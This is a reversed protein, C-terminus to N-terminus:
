ADCPVTENRGLEEESVSYNEFSVTYAERFHERIREEIASDFSPAVHLTRGQPAAVLEGDRVVLGGDKFVYRPRAFMEEKDEKEEYVTVDADAGPGLHGKRSLGLSRAPGARTVIAIDYLSYERKLEPLLAGKRARRHIGEFTEARYASDMLLKIVQPYHVFVGANPHDTTLYVRWPDDILLFLELGTLWMVSNIPNTPEYSVPVIGGGTESEVDDNVWRGGMTNHLNHQLPGDSTMTTAPGFVLQGVDVTLNPATNVAEAVSVADSLHMAGAGAKYSLFQLHCLHARRGNLARISEVTTRGSRGRGLNIGHIHPVHPLGLEDNIWGLTELIQRPTVEFGIVEDDLEEVNGGWKWNEVGGPNVIKIAYGKTARLLWAVYDRAEERRGEKIARMLFHNNGMTIFAGKDVVPLDAFEEHTHRAVLPATAAEMVTTYGMEAYLYGTLHTTPVTYGSGSWYGGKRKRESGRHDEPRLKRGVNVKAGVIHSHIDVGGPMVVLGTADFTEAGEPDIEDAPVIRGDRMWIDRVEGDIGNAPDYVRGGLIGRM